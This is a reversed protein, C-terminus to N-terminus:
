TGNWVSWLVYHTKMVYQTIYSLECKNTKCLSHIFGTDIKTPRKQKQKKTGIEQYM